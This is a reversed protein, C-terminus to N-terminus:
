SAASRRTVMGMGPPPRLRFRAIVAAIAAPSATRCSRPFADSAAGVVHSRLGSRSMGKEFHNPTGQRDREPRGPNPPRLPQPANQHSRRCTKRTGVRRFNHQISEEVMM